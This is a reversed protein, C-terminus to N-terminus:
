ATEVITVMQLAANEQSLIKGNLSSATKMTVATKSLITGEFHVGSGISVYGAVQWYINKAQVGGSLTIKKDDQVVIDGSTQFIFVDCPGGHLTIDADIVISSTWTSVGATFTFGGVTGAGANLHDADTTVRSAADTYATEMDSVATTMKTPTPVAYDAAYVNGTVQSSTSFTNSSDAVLEFATIATAAIPSVGLDGTISSPVVNTIGSKALVAFDGATGLAVGGGGPPCQEGFAINLGALIALSRMAVM